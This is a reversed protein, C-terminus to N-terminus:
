VELLEFSTFLFLIMNRVIVKTSKKRRVMACSLQFNFTSSSPIFIYVRGEASELIFATFTNHV